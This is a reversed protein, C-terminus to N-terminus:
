DRRLETIHHLYIQRSRVEPKDFPYSLYTRNWLAKFGDLDKVGFDAMDLGCAEELTTPTIGTVEYVHGSFIFVDGVAAKESMRLFKTIDVSKMVHSIPSPILKIKTSLENTASKSCKTVPQVVKAKIKGRYTFDFLHGGNAAPYKCGDCLLFETYREVPVEKDLNNSLETVM